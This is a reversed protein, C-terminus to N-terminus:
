EFCGSCSVDWWMSGSEEWMNWWGSEKVGIEAYLNVFRDTSCSAIVQGFEPHGWAVKNIMGSHAKLEGTCKWMGAMENTKKTIEGAEITNGSIGVPGPIITSATTHSSSSVLFPSVRDFIKIKQDSSCSALRRGYYDYALDHIFDAHDSPFSPSSTFM